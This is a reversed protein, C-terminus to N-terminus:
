HVGVTWKASSMEHSGAPWATPPRCRSKQGRKPSCLFVPQSWESAVQWPATPVAPNRECRGTVRFQFADGHQWISASTPRLRPVTFSVSDMKRQSGTRAYYLKAAPAASYVQGCKRVEVVYELLRHELDTVRCRLELEDEDVHKVLPAALDMTADLSDPLQEEFGAEKMLKAWKKVLRKHADVPVSLLDIVADHEGEEALDLPMKGSDDRVLCRGKVDGDDLHLLFQAAELHGHKAALHLPTWGEVATKVEVDAVGNAGFAETKAATPSRTLSRCVAVSGVAAALHLATWGKGDRLDIASRVGPFGLLVECVQTCGAEAAVHLVTRGAEDVHAVKAGQKLLVEVTRKLGRRAAWHLPLSGDCDARFNLRVARRLLLECADVCGCGAAFHLANEGRASFELAPIELSEPDAQAILPLVEELLKPYDSKFVEADACSLEYMDRLLAFADSGAAERQWAGGERCSAALGEM